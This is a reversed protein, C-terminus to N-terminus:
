TGILWVEGDQSVVYGEGKADVGFSAVSPADFPLRTVQPRDATGAAFSWIEGSCFDGFLYRGRLATVSGRYVVGGTISCRDGSHDYTHVPVVLPGPGAPTGSAYRDRGEYVRWGYNAGAQRGPPVVSVEEAEGQGVDGVYLDGNTDFSYRWPNRLGYAWVEPRAGAPGSVYPNDAPIGYPRGESPRRPDIRLIKGLLDGLDQARNEPDGGGGGDGISLLLMGAGDFAVRGGNHNSFPKPITILDRRSAPDARDGSARFEAVRVAGSTDTFNVYALRSRAYDPPFAISFMGREGGSAVDGSIDLFPAPLTRGDRVIRVRGPQEVVFLRADDPPSGVYVPDDFRGVLHLKPPGSQEPRGTPSGSGSARSPGPSSPGPSSPGPSSSSAFPEGSGSCGALLLSAALLVPVCRM